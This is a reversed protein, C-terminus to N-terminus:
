SPSTRDRADCVLRRAHAGEARPPTIRQVNQRSTRDTKERTQPPSGHSGDIGSVILIVRYTKSHAPYQTVDIVELSDIDIPEPIGATRCFEAAAVLIPDTSAKV